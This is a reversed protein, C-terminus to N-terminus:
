PPEVFFSTSPRTEAQPRGPWSSTTPKTIEEFNSRLGVTVGLSDDRGLSGRSRSGPDLLGYRHSSARRDFLRHTDCRQATSLAMRRVLINFATPHHQACSKQAIGMM